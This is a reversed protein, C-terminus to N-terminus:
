SDSELVIEPRAQATGAKPGPNSRLRERVITRLVRWGDRVARLNSTGYLREREFSPVEVMRLGSRAVRINILTEVEFGDCDVSMVPLCHRWFANFGYCLDTFRTRFLLNVVLSLCHNGLSRFATIDSSGGGPVNRSGKAFDAGAVLADVFRTIEAPNASGDADLMVVIDGSAAEFGHRLANGKGRGSQMVIAVDGRLRRATEVTGDSSCGDVVIVEHIGDPLEAFVHPLNEAENLTPIVVSVRPNPSGLRGDVTFVSDRAGERCATAM